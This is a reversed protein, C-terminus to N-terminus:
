IFGAGDTMVIMYAASSPPAARLLRMGELIGIEIDTFGGPLVDTDVFVNFSQLDTFTGNSVIGHNFQIYSATGGNEFLNRSAFAATTNTALEKVKEWDNPSISYSGDVVIALNVQRALILKLLRTPRDAM